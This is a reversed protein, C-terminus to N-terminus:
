AVYPPGTGPYDAPDEARLGQGAGRVGPAVRVCVTWMKLTTGRGIPSGPSVGPRADCRGPTQKQSSQEAKLRGQLV